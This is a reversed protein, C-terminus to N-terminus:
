GWPAGHPRGRRGPRPGTSPREQGADGAGRAQGQEGSAPGSGGGESGARHAGDVAGLLGDDALVTGDDVDRRGVPERGHVHAVRRVRGHERADVVDGAVVEVARDRVDPVDGDVAVAQDDGAGGGERVPGLGLPEGHEVHAVGGIWLPRPDVPRVVADVVREDGGVDRVDGPRADPPTGHQQVVDGVALRRRDPRERRRVVAVPVGPSNVVDVDDVARHVGAVPVEPRPDDVHAVGGVRLWEQPHPEVLVRDRLRSPSFERAVGV